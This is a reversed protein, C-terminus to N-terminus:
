QIGKKLLQFLQRLLSQEEGNDLEATCFPRMEADSAQSNIRQLVEERTCQNREMVRAIRVEIPATVLWIADVVEQLESGLLLASEVFSIEERRSAVWQELDKRVAPHVIANMRRREEESSFVRASLYERNLKGDVFSQEGFAAVLQRRVAESEEMLQKARADTDYVHYGMTRLIRSVVSKGSGIGGTIGILM